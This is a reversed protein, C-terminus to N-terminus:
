LSMWNLFIRETRYNNLKVLIRLADLVKLDGVWFSCGIMFIGIYPQGRINVM